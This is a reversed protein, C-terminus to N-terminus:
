RTGKRAKREAAKRRQEAAVYLRAAQLYAVGYPLHYAIRRRPERIWIGDSDLAVVLPTRLETVVARRVPRTLKTTM